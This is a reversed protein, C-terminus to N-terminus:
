RLIIGLARTMTLTLGGSTEARAARSGSPAFAQADKMDFGILAAGQQKAFRQGSPRHHWGLVSRAHV